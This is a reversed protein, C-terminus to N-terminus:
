DGDSFGEEREWHFRDDGEFWGSGARYWGGGEDVWLVDANYGLSYRTGEVADPEHEADCGEFVEGRAQERVVEFAWACTSCDEVVALLRLDFVVRCIEADETLDRLSLQGSGSFSEGPITLASGTWLGEISEEHGLEGGLPPLEDGGVAYWDGPACGVLLALAACRLATM